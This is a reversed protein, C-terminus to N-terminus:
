KKGRRRARRPVAKKKAKGKTGKAAKASRRAAAKVRVPKKAKARGAKRPKKKALEAPAPPEMSEDDEGFWAAMPAFYHEHWGKEYSAAQSAPVNSHRLTLRTGGDHPELLVELLSDPDEPTFETTRWAQLIRRGPELEQTTGQIYGDWATFRGGIIPDITAPNGTFGSHAESDLWAAYVEAPSIPLVTWVEFSETAM